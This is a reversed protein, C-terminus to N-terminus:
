PQPLPEVFENTSHTTIPNGAADVRPRYPNGGGTPTVPPGTRIV